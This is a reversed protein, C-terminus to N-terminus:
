LSDLPRARPRLDVDEAHRQDRDHGGADHEDGRPAAVVEFPSGPLDVSEDDGADDGGDREDEDFELDALRHDRHTQEGVAVEEKARSDPHEYADIKKNHQRVDDSVQ